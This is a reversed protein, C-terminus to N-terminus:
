QKAEIAKIINNKTSSPKIPIGLEKAMKILDKKFMKKLNIENSTEKAVPNSLTIVEEDLEPTPEMSLYHPEINTANAVETEKVITSPEKDFTQLIRDCSSSVSKMRELIVSNDEVVKTMKAEQERTKLREIRRQRRLRQSKKAM